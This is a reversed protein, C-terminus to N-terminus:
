SFSITTNVSVMLLFVSYKVTLKIMGHKRCAIADSHTNKTGDLPQSFIVSTMEM